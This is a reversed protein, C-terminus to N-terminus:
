YPLVSLSPISRSLQVAGTGKKKVYRTKTTAIKTEKVDVTLLFGLTHNSATAAKSGQYVCM